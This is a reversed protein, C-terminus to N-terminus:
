LLPGATQKNEARLLLLCNSMAIVSKHIYREETEYNSTTSVILYQLAAGLDGDNEHM